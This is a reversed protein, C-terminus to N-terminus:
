EEGELLLELYGERIQESTPFVIRKRRLAAKIRKEAKDPVDGIDDIGVTFRVAETQFVDFFGSFREQTIVEEMGFTIIDDIEPGTLRRKKAIEDRRKAAEVRQRFDRSRTADDKDKAMQTATVPLELSGLARDVKQTYTELADTEAQLQRNKLDKIEDITIHGADLNIDLDRFAATSNEQMRRLEWYRDSGSPLARVAQFQDIVRNVAGLGPATLGADLAELHTLNGSMALAVNTDLLAEEAQRKATQKIGNRDKLRAIVLDEKRGSFRERAAKTQEAFSAFQDELDDAIGQTERTLAAETLQAEMSIRARAVQSATLAGSELGKRLAVDIELMYSQRLDEDDTEGALKTLGDVSTLTDARIRDLRSATVGRQVQLRTQEKIGFVRDDFLNQFLPTSISNRHRNLIEEQGKQYLDERLDIDPNQEVELRLDNLESSASQVGKSVKANEVAGFVANAAEGGEEAARALARAGQDTGLDIATARRGRPAPGAIVRPLKPM